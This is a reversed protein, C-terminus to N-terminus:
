KPSFWSNGLENLNERRVVVWGLTNCLECTRVELRNEDAKMRTMALESPKPDYRWNLSASNVSAKVSDEHCFWKSLFSSVSTPENELFCATVGHEARNYSSLRNSVCGQQLTWITLNFRFVVNSCNSCKSCNSSHSACLESEKYTLHNWTRNWEGWRPAKWRERM